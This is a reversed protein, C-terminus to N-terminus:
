TNSSAEKGADNHEKELAEAYLASYAVADEASDRHYAPNACQRVYKLVSMLLWGDSEKLNAGTLLNFIAITKAMSREQKGQKNDYTKGRELMLKHAQMLFEGASRADPANDTTM